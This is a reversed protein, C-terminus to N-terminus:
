PECVVGCVRQYHDGSITWSWGVQTYSQVGVPTVTVRVKELPLNDDSLGWIVLLPANDGCVGGGCSVTGTGDYSIRFDDSELEEGAVTPVVTIGYSGAVDVQLGIAATYGDRELFESHFEQAWIRVSYEDIAGPLCYPGECHLEHGQIPLWDTHKVV